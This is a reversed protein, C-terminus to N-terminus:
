INKIIFKQNKKELFFGVSGIGCGSGSRPVAYSLGCTECRYISKGWAWGRRVVRGDSKGKFVISKGGNHNNPCWFRKKFTM